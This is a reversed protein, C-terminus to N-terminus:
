PDSDDAGVPTDGGMQGGPPCIRVDLDDADARGMLFGRLRCCLGLANRQREPVIPLHGLMWVDVDDIRVCTRIQAVVPAHSRQHSALV